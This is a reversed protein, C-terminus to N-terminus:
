RIASQAVKEGPTLVEKHISIFRALVSSPTRLGIGGFLGRGGFRYFGLKAPHKSRTRAGIERGGPM